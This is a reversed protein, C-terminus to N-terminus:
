RATKPTYIHLSRILVCMFAPGVHLFVDCGQAGQVPVVQLKEKFDGAGALGAGGGLAQGHVVGRHRPADARQFAGQTGQQELLGPGVAKDEGGLALTQQPIGFGYFARQVHRAFLDRTRPHRQGAVDPHATGLTEATEEDGRLEAVEDIGVRRDRHVDQRQRM